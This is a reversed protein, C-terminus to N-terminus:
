GVDVALLAAERASRFDLGVSGTGFRHAPGACEGVSDPLSVLWNSSYEVADKDARIKVPAKGSPSILQRDIGVKRRLFDSRDVTLGVALQYEDLCDGFLVLLRPEGPVLHVAFGVMPM